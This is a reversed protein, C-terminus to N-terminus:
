TPIKERASFFWKADEGGIDVLTATKLGLRRVAMSESVLEQAFKFGGREAIGMGASGTFCARFLADPMARSLKELELALCAGVDANHRAYSAYVTKAGDSVSLKVTTSGADIGLNYPM